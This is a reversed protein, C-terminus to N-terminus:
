QWSVSQVSLMMSCAPVSDTNLHKALGIITRQFRCVSQEAEQFAHSAAAHSAASSCWPHTPTRQHSLHMCSDICSGM